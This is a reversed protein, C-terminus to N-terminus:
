ENIMLTVQSASSTQDSISDAVVLFLQWRKDLIVEELVQDIVEFVVASIGLIFGKDRITFLYEKVFLGELDFVFKRLDM